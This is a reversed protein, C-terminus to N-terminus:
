NIEGAASGAGMFSGHPSGAWAHHMSAHVTALQLLMIVVVLKSYM